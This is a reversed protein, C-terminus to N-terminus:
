PTHFVEPMNTWVEHKALARPLPLQTPDTERWWKQTLSDAAMRQMDADFDNGTYEFYSFLYYKDDIKQLYISYNHINCEAIKKVVGPWPAAHLKKYYAIKDPKIGTVMGYRIVKPAPPKCGAIFALVCLAISYIINKM